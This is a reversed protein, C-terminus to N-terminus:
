VIIGRRVMASPKAMRLSVYSLPLLIKFDQEGNEIAFRCDDPYDSRIYFSAAFYTFVDSAYKVM